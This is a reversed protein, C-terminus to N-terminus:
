KTIFNNLFLKSKELSEAIRIKATGGHVYRNNISEDLNLNTYVDETIVASFEQLKRLNIDELDLKENIAYSVIKGVIAHSERFSVGKKVLYDALDTATTYGQKASLRMIDKQVRLGEIVLKMIDLSNKLTDLSDFIPEKDEQNDKNYALPQSKMITLLSMLNGYIRGTKGRILELMDPNKKQPMISSGTCVDDNLQLFNFEATSFLIIEEAIRSLHMFTISIDSAAQILFDRDSVADISNESIADFELLQALYDRDIKFGSGSLAASGLPMVNVSKRLNVTRLLDRKLMAFWALLHHAFSVPQAPQMHTFGPMITDINQQALNKISHLLALYKHQILDIQDRVYLRIDTAVQDNRSRGTHLKRGPEGILDILAAEINMHIDEQLLNFEFEGKAIKQEISTLGKEIAKQDTETLIGLKQLALSYAISGLIDQQYLRKDFDISANFQEVLLNIEQELRASSLKATQNTNKADM